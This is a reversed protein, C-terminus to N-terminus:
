LTRTRGGAEPESNQRPRHLACGARESGSQGYIMSRRASNLPRALRLRLRRKNHAHKARSPRIITDRPAGLAQDHKGEEEKQRPLFSHGLGDNVCLRQRSSLRAAASCAVLPPLFSTFPAGSSRAICQAAGRARLSLAFCPLTPERASPPRCHDAPSFFATRLNRREEACRASGCLDRKWRQRGGCAELGQCL